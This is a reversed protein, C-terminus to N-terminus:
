HGGPMLHLAGIMCAAVIAFVATVANALLLRALSPRQGERARSELLCIPFAVLGALICTVQVLRAEPLASWQVLTPHEPWSDPQGAYMDTHKGVGGPLGEPGLSFLQYSAADFRYNLRRGWGDVPEGNEDVSVQKQKVVNLDKLEAPWNGKTDKHLNIAERIRELDARTKLHQETRSYQKRASLWACLYATAMVILVTTVSLLVRSIWRGCEHPVSM